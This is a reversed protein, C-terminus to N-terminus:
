HLPFVVRLPHPISKVGVQCPVCSFHEVSFTLKYIKLEVKIKEMTYKVNIM